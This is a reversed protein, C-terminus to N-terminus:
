KAALIREIERLVFSLDPAESPEIHEGVHKHHPFTSIEPHHPANDYRLILREGADQYHFTYLAKRIMIGTFEVTESFELLSNDWFRLRAAVHGSRPNVRWELHEIAAGRLSYVTDLYRQIHRNLRDM